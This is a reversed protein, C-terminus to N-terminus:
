FKPGLIAVNESGKFNEFIKISGLQYGALFFSQSMQLIVNISLHLFIHKKNLLIKVSVNYKLLSRMNQSNKLLFIEYTESPLNYM